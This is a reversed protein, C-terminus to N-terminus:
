CVPCGNLDPYYLAFTNNPFIDTLQEVYQCQFSNRENSLRKKFLTAVGKDVM